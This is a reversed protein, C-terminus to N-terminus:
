KKLLRLIRKKEESYVEVFYVGASLFSLNVMNGETLSFRKIFRGEVSYINVYDLALSSQITIEDESPNPFLILDFVAAEELGLFGCDESFVAIDDIQWQTQNNAFNIDDVQICQLNPNEYALFNDLINNSGNAINLETLDNTYCRLSTLNPNQSVDLISLQNNYIWLRELNINASVDISTLPNTSLHLWELQLNQSLDVTGVFNGRSKLVELNTFAEIGELSAIEYYSVILNVVAEAETVQIEGDGNTDAISDGLGNGSTDVVPFHVLADKFNEDPIDVIQANSVLVFGLFIPIFIQFFM